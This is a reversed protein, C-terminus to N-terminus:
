RCPNFSFTAVTRSRSCVKFTRLFYSSRSIKNLFAFDAGLRARPFTPGDLFTAPVLDLLFFVFPQGLCILFLRLATCRARSIRPLDRSEKIVTLRSSDTREQGTEVWQPRHRKWTLPWGSIPFRVDLGASRIM